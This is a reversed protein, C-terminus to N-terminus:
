CNVYSGIRLNEVIHMLQTANQLSLLTECFDLVDSESTAKETLCKLITQNTDLVSTCEFIESIHQNCLHRELLQVSEFYNDPM